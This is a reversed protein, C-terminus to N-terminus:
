RSGGDEGFDVDPQNDSDITHRHLTALVLLGLLADRPYVWKGSVYTDIEYEPAEDLLMLLERLVSCVGDRDSPGGFLDFLNVEVHATVVRCVDGIRDSLTYHSSISQYRSLQELLRPLDRNHEIIPPVKLGAWSGFRKWDRSEEFSFDSPGLQRCAEAVWDSVQLQVRLKRRM